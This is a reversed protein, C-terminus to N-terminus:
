SSVAVRTYEVGPVPSTMKGKLEGLLGYCLIEDGATLYVDSFPGLATGTIDKEVDIAHRQQMMLDRVTYGQQPGNYSAVLHGAQVAIDTYLIGADADATDILGGNTDYRLINNGSSLYIDGQVAIGSATVNDTNFSSVQELNLDRTTVGTQSGTYSAYVKDYHVTVATYTIDSAPATIKKILTGDKRCHYIHNAATFYLDDNNGAAVGTYNIAEDKSWLQDFDLNRATFGTYSGQYTAYIIPQM